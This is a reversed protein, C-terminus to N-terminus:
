NHVFRHIFYMLESWKAQSWSTIRVDFTLDDDPEVEGGVVLVMDNSRADQDEALAGLRERCAPALKSSVPRSLAAGGAPTSKYSATSTAPRRVSV